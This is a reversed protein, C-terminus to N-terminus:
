KKVLYHKMVVYNNKNFKVEFGHKIYFNIAPKNNEAVELVLEKFGQNQAFIICNELLRSAVGQRNYSTVVSVNTIYGTILEPDNIYAAILGILKQNEWAEFTVSTRVIKDTYNSLSIRNAINAVFLPDCHSFHELIDTQKCQQRSYFLAPANKM